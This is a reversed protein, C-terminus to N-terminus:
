SGGVARGEEQAGVMTPRDALLEEADQVTDHKITDRLLRTGGCESRTM